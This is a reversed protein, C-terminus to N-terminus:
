RESKPVYIEADDDIVPRYNYFDNLDQDSANNLLEVGHDAIETLRQKTPRFRSESTSIEARERQEKPWNRTILELIGSKNKYTEIM